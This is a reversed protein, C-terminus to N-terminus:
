APLDIGAPAATDPRKKLGNMFKRVEDQEAPTNSMMNTPENHQLPTDAFAENLRNRARTIIGDM